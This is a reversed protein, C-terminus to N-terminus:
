ADEPGVLVVDLLTERGLISLLMDEFKGRFYRVEDNQDHRGMQRVYNKRAKRIIRNVDKKIRRQAKTTVECRM